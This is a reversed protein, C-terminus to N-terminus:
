VKGSEASINKKKLEEHWLERVKLYGELFKTKISSPTVISIVRAGVLLYPATKANRVSEIQFPFATLLM